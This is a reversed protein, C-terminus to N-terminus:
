GPHGAWDRVNVQDCERAFADIEESTPAKERSWLEVM